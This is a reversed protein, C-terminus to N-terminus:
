RPPEFLCKNEYIQLSSMWTCTVHLNLTQLFSVEQNIPLERKIFLSPQLTHTLTDRIFINIEGVLVRDQGRVV